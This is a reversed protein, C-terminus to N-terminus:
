AASDLITGSSSGNKGSAVKTPRVKDGDDTSNAQSGKETDGQVKAAGPIELPWIDERDIETPSSAFQADLAAVHEPHEATAIGTVSMSHSYITSKSSQPNLHNEDRAKQDPTEEFKPNKSFKFQCSLIMNEHM